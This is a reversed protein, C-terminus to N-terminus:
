LIQGTQTNHYEIHIEFNGPYLNSTPVLPPFDVLKGSPTTSWLLEDDQPWWYYYREPLDLMDLNAYYEASYDTKAYCLYPGTKGDNARYGMRHWGAYDFMVANPLWESVEFISVASDPDLPQITRTIKLLNDAASEFAVLANQVGSNVQLAMSFNTMATALASRADLYAQWNTGYDEEFAETGFYTNPLNYEYYHNLPFPLVCTWEACNCWGKNIATNIATYTEKKVTDTLGPFSSNSCLYIADDELKLIQQGKIRQGRVISQAETPITSCGSPVNNAFQNYKDIISQWDSAKIINAM